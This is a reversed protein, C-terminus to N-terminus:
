FYDHRPRQRVDRPEALTDTRLFGFREKSRPWSFSRCSGRAAISRGPELGAPRSAGVGSSCTSGYDQRMRQLETSWAKNLKVGKWVVQAHAVLLVFELISNAADMVLLRLPAHLQRLQIEAMFKKSGYRSAPAVIEPDPAMDVAVVLARLLARVESRIEADVQNSTPFPADAFQYGKPSAKYRMLEAEYHAKDATAAAQLKAMLALDVPDASAQLRSWESANVVARATSPMYNLEKKRENMWLTFQNRAGTPTGAGKDGTPQSPPKRRHSWPWALTRRTARALLRRWSLLLTRLTNM